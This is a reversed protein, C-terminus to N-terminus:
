FYKFISIVIMIDNMKLSFIKHIVLIGQIKRVIALFSNLSFKFLRHIQDTKITISM